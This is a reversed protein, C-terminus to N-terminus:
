GNFDKLFVIESKPNTSLTASQAVPERSWGFDSMQFRFDRKM